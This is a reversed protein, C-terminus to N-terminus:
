EKLRFAPDGYHIYDAWDRSKIKNVATRASLLARGVSQGVVLDQYFSKAFAAASADGVPWYTGILQAVGNILFAEAFSVAKEMRDKAERTLDKDSRARSRAAPARGRVRASECANFFVLTPVTGLRALASGSLVGDVARIGSNGPNVPDFEAHGAYHVADYRGSSFRATLEGVTGEPGSLRDVDVGTTAALMKGVAEGEAEAGELDGTPNIVLLIRLIEERQRREL